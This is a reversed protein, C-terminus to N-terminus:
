RCPLASPGPEAGANSGTSGSLEVEALQEDSPVQGAPVVGGDLQHVVDVQDTISATTPRHRDIRGIPDTLHQLGQLGIAQVELADQDGVMVGVVYSAGHAPPPDFAQGLEELIMRYRHMNVVGLGLGTRRELPEGGTIEHAVAISVNEHDAIDRHSQDVGRTVGGAAM